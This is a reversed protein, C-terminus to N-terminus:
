LIFSPIPVYWLLFGVNAAIETGFVSGRALAIISVAFSLTGATLFSATRRGLVRAGQAIRHIKVQLQDREEQVM